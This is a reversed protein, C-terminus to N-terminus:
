KSVLELVNRDTIVIGGSLAKPYVKFGLHWIHDAQSKVLENFIGLDSTTNGDWRTAVPRNPVKVASSSDGM